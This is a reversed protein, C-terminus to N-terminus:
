YGEDNGKGDIKSIMGKGERLESQTNQGKKEGPKKPGLIRMMLAALRRSRKEASIQM